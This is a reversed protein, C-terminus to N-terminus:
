IVTPLAFSVSTGEQRQSYVYLLSGHAEVIRKVLALGLGTGRVRQNNNTTLQHFPEFIEEIHQPDIGIGTDTVALVVNDEKKEASIEVEGGPPTFKIANDLLQSLVWTIKQSDAKVPPIDSRFRTNIDIQRAKAKTLAQTVATLLPTDLSVETLHLPFNGQSADSFQLLDDILQQLHNSARQSADLAQKQEETLPGLHEECMLDLYNRLYQLPTNLENSVATVFNSKLRSLEALESFATHLELTRAQMQERLERNQKRLAIQTDFVQLTVVQDLVDQDIFDMEVLIQGLLVHIGEQALKQQQSIAQQLQTLTIYKNEVLYEGLRPVLAEATLTMERNTQLPEMLVKEATAMAMAMDCHCNPCFRSKPQILQHCNPCSLLGSELKHM